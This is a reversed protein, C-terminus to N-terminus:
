GEKRIGPVTRESPVRLSHALRVTYRAGSRFAVQPGYTTAVHAGTAGAGAVAGVRAGKGGAVIGGVVAGAITGAGVTAADRKAQSAAILTISNSTMPHEQGRLVVRDFRVSIKARGKLKGGRDASTVHGRVESGAPILIEGRSSRVHLRTKAVVLDGAHSSDSSVTTEFVVPLRTGAPLTVMDQAPAAVPGAAWALAAVFSVAQIWKKM